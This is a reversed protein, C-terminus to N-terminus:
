GNKLREIWTLFLDLPLNNKARNCIKCCPVCNSVEYGKSSDLRDIGNRCFESGEPTTWLSEPPIKCFYCVGSVINEFQKRSLKWSLKRTKANRRYYNWVATKAAFGLAKRSREGVLERQLCGCSRANILSTIVKNGCDCICEYHTFSQPKNFSKRVTRLVTLRGFKKGIKKSRQSM